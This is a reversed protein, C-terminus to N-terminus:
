LNFKLFKLLAYNIYFAYTTVPMAVATLFSIYNSRTESATSSNNQMNTNQKEAPVALKKKKQHCFDKLFPWHTPM